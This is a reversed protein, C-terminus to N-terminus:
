NACFNDYFECRFSEREDNVRLHHKLKRRVIREVAEGFITGLHDVVAVGVDAKGHEDVDGALLTGAVVVVLFGPGHVGKDPGGGDHGVGREDEVEVAVVVDVVGEGDAFAHAEHHIAAALVDAVDLKGLAELADIGGVAVGVVVGDEEVAVHAREVADLTRHVNSGSAEKASKSKIAKVGRGNRVVGPPRNLGRRIQIISLHLPPGEGGSVKIILEIGIKKGLSESVRSREGFRNRDRFKLSPREGIM